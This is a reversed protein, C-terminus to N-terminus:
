GRLPVEEKGFFSFDSKYIKPFFPITVLWCHCMYVGRFPQFNVNRLPNGSNKKSSLFIQCPYPFFGEVVYAAHLGKAAYYM